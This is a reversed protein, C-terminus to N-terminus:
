EMIIVQDIRKLSSTENRDMYKDDFEFNPTAFFIDPPYTTGNGHLFSMAKAKTGTESTILPNATTASSNSSSARLNAQNSQFFMSLLALSFLYITSEDTM